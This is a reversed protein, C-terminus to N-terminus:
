THQLDYDDAVSARPNREIYRIVKLVHGALRAQAFASTPSNEPQSGRRNSARILM